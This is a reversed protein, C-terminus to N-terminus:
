EIKQILKKSLLLKRNWLYKSLNDSCTSSINNYLNTNYSKIFITSIDINNNFLWGTKENQILEDLNSGRRAITPTGMVGAELVTLGFGEKYSPHILFHSKSLYKYKDEESVKGLFEVCSPSNLSTIYEPPGSGIVFLKFDPLKESIERAAQIASELGKMKVLRGLFVASPFPFKSLRPYKPADIGLPLIKINKNQNLNYIDTKTSNSIAWTETNRYLHYIVKESLKGLIDIPFPFMKDWISGAVECVLMVNRAHSYLPTFFPLGHIEDIVLDIKNERIIKKALQIANFLFVPYTTMLGSVSYGLSPGVRLYKVKNTEETLDCGPITNAVWTVHHSQNAWYSAYKETVIEAGGSRPNKPDRWNLILINM